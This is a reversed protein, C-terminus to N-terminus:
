DPVWGAILGVIPSRRGIPRSPGLSRDDFTSDGSSALPQRTEKLIAGWAPVIRHLEGGLRAHSMDVSRDNKGRAYALSADIGSEAHPQRLTSSPEKCRFHGNVGSDALAPLM